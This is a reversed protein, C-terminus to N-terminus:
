KSSLADRIRGWFGAKEAPEETAGDPPPTMPIIPAREGVSWAARAASAARILDLLAVPDNDKIAAELCDVAKKFHVLQYEMESKNAMFVDRWLTADGAAIRTFDRFGVGALSMYHEGKEQSILGNMYGFAILHPLHSVAAFAADHDQPTMMQVKSGLARWVKIADDLQAQRTVELPTLVVKHDEFLNAEAARFGAIDKGAIPHAPVFNAIKKHLTKQAAAIVDQKTSGVDMVLMTPEILSVIDSFIKPIAGVPVAILVIDSGSVAHLASPATEDLIGAAKANETTTPSKSYGIVREVIGAKKAAMAFSCGILGCGIIGLRNFMM